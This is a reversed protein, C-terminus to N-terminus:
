SVWGISASLKPSKPSAGPKLGFPRVIFWFFKTYNRKAEDAFGFFAFFVIACMPAAWRTFEMSIVLVHNQRWLLAPVQQIRGYDFHTDAWSIWPGVPSVKTNLYITFIALPTTLIIDSMALAMLRFYRSMTLSSANSHMFQSFELRRRTFARLSLVCYTASILGIVIPWMCSTFYTVLTNYLAPYCGIDEFIDFRHGQVVYQLAVFFLPFLVCILSDIVIARTKESRGLNIKQVNAIHYLRRNICLSSAPVGVSAAMMIRISIECWAPSHNISNGAWVISNIFQNLCALAAWMMFYCTGSNWAQLHWPLPILSLVFGLFAFIPFLPYTVDVM